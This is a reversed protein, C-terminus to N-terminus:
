SYVASEMTSVIFNGMERGNMVVKTDKLAEKFASVLVDYNNSSYGNSGYSSSKYNANITTDFDTPIANAMDKSVNKMTDEFGIGIGEALYTGVQDKMVRSPSKIGFFSKIGDLMSSGVKKIADWIFNGMSTFGNVIGKIIDQGVTKWGGNAFGKIIKGVIKPIEKLLNPVTQGLGKILGSIITKGLTLFKSLTFFNIIAEIITPLNSIITPISKILGEILGLIVKVGLELFTSFNDNFVEMIKIIVDVIQPVLDPLSEAIGRMLEFLIQTGLTLITPLNQTLFQVINDIIQFIVPTIQPLMSTIGDLLKQLIQMGAEMIQPMNEILKGSLGIVLDVIGDIIIQVRPMINEAVTEISSVLNEIQQQMFIDSESSITTLMNQWVAKLSNVSGQITSSAEKATTGSIGMKSQMVSIANVINGFSLSSSDVSVGLEKQVDKMKSADKVLREMETKTGGYGLKLNDLMTYNQKAFGQYASQILAMDTGMKNANDSMDIIARNAYDAAKLTNGKLSQILSASFSTVTEMYENASLGATEYAKDAYNLVSEQAEYMQDYKKQVDKVSKGVSAAYEEVSVEGIGFLTQVGGILQEYDAYSDLAKKGVDVFISGIEKVVSGLSKIGDLIADSLLNAKLVDGFKLAGDGADDFGKKMEKLEETSKNTASEMQVLQNEANNLQTKFAKVKENNSGYEQEAKELAERLESIKEKQDQVSKNINDYSNKTQKITTDGNSFQTTALKLESSMLKLDSTIDKLAKKYESEGTLKITGGFSTAAM